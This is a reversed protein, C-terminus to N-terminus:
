RIKLTSLSLMALIMSIIWFRVIVKPEPWGNLEFHHHIPAMKFIRKGKTMKFFGVQLIVSMTEIVFLGGVLVLLIEQKTIVAVTGLVAGLPLSGVDGMFIQAPYTNYWLFGLGAGVIAGLIVATEGCGAVYNIQLYEAIKVHGAVYAFIIYTVAAITVPGIALGDLGDTLNVANSTGVIVFMAFLIYFPGLDPSCHKIFPITVRSDFTPNWYLLFGALFAIALQLIFKGRATLGLNQRKTVKMYDDLFGIAGYGLMVMLIIWIYSNSLNGWLLTSIFVSFLILTGGMTPTGSKSFHSEPGDKQIYQGIQLRRLMRIVYPGLFFCVVMATITAYITRFTIYRFLNFASIYHHLPYLFHYIM